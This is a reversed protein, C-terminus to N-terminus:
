FPIDDDVHLAETKATRKRSQKAVAPEAPTDAPPVGHRSPDADHMATDPDNMDTGADGRNPSKALRNIETCALTVGYVTEDNRQYASQAISGKVHILDGICINNRVYNQTSDSFITVENWRTRDIWDGNNDKRPNSSGINVRITTGVTKINGVRGIINFEALHSM